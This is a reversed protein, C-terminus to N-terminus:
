RATLHHLIRDLDGLSSIVFCVLDAHGLERMPKLASHRGYVPKGEAGKKAFLVSAPSRRFVIGLEDLYDSVRKEALWLNAPSDPRKEFMMEAMSGDSCRLLYRASLKGQHGSPHQMAVEDLHMLCNLKLEDRGM